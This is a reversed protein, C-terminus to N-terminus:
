RKRGQRRSLDSAMRLFYALAAGLGLTGGVLLLWPSTELRSDLWYGAGLGGLVTAAM